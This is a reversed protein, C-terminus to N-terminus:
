NSVSKQFIDLWQAAKENEQANKSDFLASIALYVIDISPKEDM